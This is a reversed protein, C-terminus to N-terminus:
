WPPLLRRVGVAVVIILLLLNRAPMLAGEWWRRRPEAAGGLDAALRRLSSVSLPWDIIRDVWSRPISPEGNDLGALAGVLAGTTDADGGLLIVSEVARAFDGRYRLFAYLVAPLTHIVWGTVGLGLGRAQAWQSPTLDAGLGERISALWPAWCPSRLGDELVALLVQNTAGDAVQRAIRALVSAAEVTVADAHTVRTSAEVLRDLVVPDRELLGLIPARM